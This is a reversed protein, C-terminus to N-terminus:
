NLAQPTNSVILIEHQTGKLISKHPIQQCIDYKPEMVLNILTMLPSVVCSDTDPNHLWINVVLISFLSFYWNPLVLIKEFSTHQSM